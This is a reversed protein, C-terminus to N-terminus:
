TSGRLVYIEAMDAYIFVCVLISLKWERGFKVIEYSFVNLSPTCIYSVNPIRFLGELIFHIFITMRKNPQVDNRLIAIEM